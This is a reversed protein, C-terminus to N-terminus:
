ALLEGRSIVKLLMGEVVIPIRKNLIKVADHLKTSREAYIEMLKDGKRVKYGRKAHLLVGAGKDKPAGAARAIERIAINDVKTVFGDVPSYVVHIHEGLPIEDPKVNPNGGQAEIIERMKKYAKGRKWLDKAAHYGGGVPAVGGMELLLGALSLSKEILSAPGEGMLARLAERAELAPGVAHGVPQEGYTIGCRVNIGLRRGMEIFTTSLEEAEEMTEVKAGKGVPIDLVLNTVGIAMKKAMISAIMQPKPDLGIPYEVRIILDDGPAINLMGGWVICGKTKRVIEKIESAKFEVNALVEMTDATGAPSTIARSATKPILLGSAAVIPVIMLSVKNGPVGGISHKDYVPEEFDLTEGLEALSRTLYETEDLSLGVFYETMAFALTELPGINGYVIDEVIKRIEEKSLEEGRMKKKIFSIALPRPAM